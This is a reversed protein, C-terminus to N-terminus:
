DRVYAPPRNTTDATTGRTDDATYITGVDVTATAAAAATYPTRQVVDVHESRKPKKATFRCDGCVDGGGGDSGGGDSVDDDASVM